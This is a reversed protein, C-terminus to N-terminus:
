ARKPLKIRKEELLVVAGAGMERRKMRKAYMEVVGFSQGTIASVQAVTAGAELLSNVANKRLGHPVVNYGLGAAFAKLDRLAIAYGVPKGNGQTVITMGRRPTKALEVALEQSMKIDLSTGFRATKTPVVAVYGDRIDSWRLKLADNFLERAPEVKGM